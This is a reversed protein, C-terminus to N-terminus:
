WNKPKKDNVLQFKRTQGSRCWLYRYIPARGIGELQQMNKTAVEDLHEGSKRCCEVVLLLLAQLTFNADNGATHLKAFTCKLQCLLNRLHGRHIGPPGFVQRALYYTDFMGVINYEKKLDELELGLGQLM